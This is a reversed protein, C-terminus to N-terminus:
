IGHGTTEQINKWPHQSWWRGPCDMGISLLEKQSSLKGSTRASSGKTCISAIDMQGTVPQRPSSVSELRAVVEKCTDASLSSTEGSGGKRKFVGLERLEEHSKHELGKGLETTRRQVHELMEMDKSHPTWFQVCYKLHPRVLAWHRHVTVARIKSAVSNSLSAM